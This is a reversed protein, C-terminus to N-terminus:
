RPNTGFELGNVLIKLPEDLTVILRDAAEPEEDESLADEASTADRSNTTPEEAVGEAARHFWNANEPLNFASSAKNKQDWTTLVAFVNLNYM